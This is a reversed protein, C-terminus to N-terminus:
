AMRLSCRRGSRALLESAFEPPLSSDSLTSHLLLQIFYHIAQVSSKKHTREEIYEVKSALQTTLKLSSAYCPTVRAAAQQGCTATLPRLVAYETFSVLDHAISSLGRVSEIASFARVYHRRRHILASNTDCSTCILTKAM